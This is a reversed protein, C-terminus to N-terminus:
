DQVVTWSSQGGKLDLRIMGRGSVSAKEIGREDAPHCVQSAMLKIGAIRPLSQLGDFRNLLICLLDMLANGTVAFLQSIGFQKHLAGGKAELVNEAFSGIFVPLGQLRRQLLQILDLRLKHRLDEFLLVRPILGEELSHIMLAIGRRCPM